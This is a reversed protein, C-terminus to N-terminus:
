LLDYFTSNWGTPFQFENALQLLPDGYRLIGDRQSNFCVGTIEFVSMSDLLIGDRQSNFCRDLWQFWNWRYLYFEMGNPISVEEKTCDKAIEECYFEIGNPISVRKKRDLKRKRLRLIGDRQSNFSLFAWYGFHAALYFEMGNPISVLYHTYVYLRVNQYFEM